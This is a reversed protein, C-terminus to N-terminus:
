AISDLIPLLVEIFRDPDESMPFHGLGPMAAYTSGAIRRHAEESAPITVFDYEGTLLHVPCVSTDILHAEDRLDHDVAFYFIDGPFVGPAGQAYHLRTEQRYAEPATAGMWSMMSAAHVAPDTGMIAAATDDDPRREAGQGLWLGGECSIVARFEQPHYRALDLALMGGVSSGLFVPRDLGLVDALARPVAMAFDKTLRYPQSWWARSEPPLSKGHYPLDYAIVRFRSIIREDELLHRWQRGDSGATHQCLLGVGEGSEEYYVRHDVGELDVHVYRGVAHDHQGHRRVSPMPRPSPDTGNAAFRLLDGFRRVALHREATLFAGELALGALAAGFVDGFPAPPPDTLFTSWIDPSASLTVVGPDAPDPWGAKLAGIRGQILGFCWREPGVAVGIAGTWSAANLRFEGDTGAMEAAKRVTTEDLAALTSRNV